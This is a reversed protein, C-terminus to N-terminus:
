QGQDFHNNFLVWQQAPSMHGGIGPGLPGHPIGVSLNAFTNGILLMSSGGARGDRPTPERGPPFLTASTNYNPGNSVSCGEITGSNPLAFRTNPGVIVASNFMGASAQTVSTGCNNFICSAIVPDSQGSFDLM